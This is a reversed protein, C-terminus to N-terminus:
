PGTQMADMLRLTRTALQSVLVWGSAPQVLRGAFGGAFGGASGRERWAEMAARLEGPDQPLSAGGPLQMDPPRMTGPGEGEGGARRRELEERLREINAPDFQRAGSGQRGVGMALPQGSKILEDFERQQARTLVGRVQKVWNRGTREPVEEVGVFNQLLPRMKEVQQQTLEEEGTQLWFNIVSLLQALEEDPPTTNRSCGTAAVALVLCTALLIRATKM